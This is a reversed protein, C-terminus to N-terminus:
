HTYGHGTYSEWDRGFKKWGKKWNRGFVELKKWNWGFGEQHGITRIKSNKGFEEM